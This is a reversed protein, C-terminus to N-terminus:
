SEYIRIGQGGVGPGLKDTMYEIVLQSVRAQRSPISPVEICLNSVRALSSSPLKAHEIVLESIRARGGPPTGPHPYQNIDVIDQVTISDLLGGGFQLQDFEYSNVIAVPLTSFPLTTFGSAAENIVLSGGIALSCKAALYGTPDPPNFEQNFKVNCQLFTWENKQVPPYGSLGSNGFANINVCRCSISSDREFGLSFITPGIKTIPDVSALNLFNQSLTTDPTINIWFFISISVSSVDSVARIAGVQFFCRGSNNPGGVRIIGGGFQFGPVLTPGPPFSEFDQDIFIGM